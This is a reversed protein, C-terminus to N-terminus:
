GHAPDTSSENRVPEVLIAQAVEESIGLRANCVQCIFNVQRSIIRIRQSEGLGMERLRARVEPTALLQRICVEAGEAMRSLPCVGPESCAGELFECPKEAESM